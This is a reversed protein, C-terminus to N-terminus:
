IVLEVSHSAVNNVRMLNREVTYVCTSGWTVLVPLCRPVYHAPNNKQWVPSTGGSDSWSSSILQQGIWKTSSRLLLGPFGPGTIRCGQNVKYYQEETIRTVNYDQCQTLGHVSKRLAFCKRSCGWLFVFFCFIGFSFFIFLYFCYSTDIFCVYKSVKEQLGTSSNVISTILPNWWVELGPRLYGPM